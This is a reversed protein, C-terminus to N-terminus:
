GRKFRHDSINPGVIDNDIFDILQPLANAAQRVGRIWAKDRNISWPRAGWWHYLQKRTKVLNVVQYLPPDAEFRKETLDISFRPNYYKEYVVNIYYHSAGDSREFLVSNHQRKDGNAYLGVKKFGGEKLIPMINSLLLAKQERTLNEGRWILREILSKTM